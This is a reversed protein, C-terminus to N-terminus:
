LYSAGKANDTRFFFSSSALGPKFGQSNLLENAGRQFNHPSDAHQFNFGINPLYKIKNIITPKVIVFILFLKCNEEKCHIKIWKNSIIIIIIILSLHLTSYEM